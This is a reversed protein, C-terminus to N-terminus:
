NGKSPGVDATLVATLDAVGSEVQEITGNLPLAHVHVHVGVAPVDLVRAVVDGSVYILHATPVHLALAYAVAQYVDGNPVSGQGDGLVKYKTDAVTLPTGGRSIVIDPRLAVARDTDLWWRRDQASVDLGVNALNSRLRNAIYGEFVAAMDVLFTGGIAAGARHTWSVAELIVRALRLPAAYHQNLRHLRVEPLPLGRPLSEVDAFLVQMAKFSHGLADTVGALRGLVRLATRLIRNEDIDETFDDFDIEIPLPIGPRKGLQRPIDWRGRVVSASDQVSRYGKLLGRRTAEDLAVIFARAIAVPISADAGYATESPGLRLQLGGLSAMFVINELPTKPVVRLECGAVVAVGVKGVDTIRWRGVVPTPTVRCFRLDQLQMAQELTLDVFSEGKERIFIREAM